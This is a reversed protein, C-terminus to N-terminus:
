ANVKALFELVRANTADKPQREVAVDWYVPRPLCEELYRAASTAHSADHGQVVPAPIDLRMPEEPEAGPATDRDFLARCMAECISKYQERDQKAFAAAFAGHLTYMWLPPGSGVVEYRTAIGDIVASAM